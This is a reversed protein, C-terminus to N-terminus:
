VDDQPQLISLIDIIYFDIIYFIVPRAIMLGTKKKNSMMVNANTPIM